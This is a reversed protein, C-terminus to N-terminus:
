NSTIQLEKILLKPSQFMYKPVHAKTHALINNIAPVSNIYIRKTM